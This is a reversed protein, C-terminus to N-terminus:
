LKLLRVSSAHIPMICWTVRMKSLTCRQAPYRETCTAPSNASLSITRTEMFFGSRVNSALTSPRYSHPQPSSYPV